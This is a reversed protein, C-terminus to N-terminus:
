QWLSLSVYSILTLYRSLGGGIPRERWFWLCLCFYHLHSRENWGRRRQWHHWLIRASHVTPWVYKSNQCYFVLKSITLVLAEHTRILFGFFSYNATYLTRILCGHVSHWNQRNHLSKPEYLIWPTALFNQPLWWCSLLHSSSEFDLQGNKEM